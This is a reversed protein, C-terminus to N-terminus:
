RLWERWGDAAQDNDALKEPRGDIILAVELTSGSTRTLCGVSGAYWWWAATAAAGAPTMRDAALLRLAAGHALAAPPHMTFHQAAPAFRLPLHNALARLGDVDPSQIWSLLFDVPGRRIAEVNQPRFTVGSGLMTAIVDDRLWVPAKDSGNRAHEVDR